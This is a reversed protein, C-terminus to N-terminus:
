PGSWEFPIHKSSRCKREWKFGMADVEDAVATGWTAVAGAAGPGVESGPPNITQVRKGPPTTPGTLAEAKALVKGPIEASWYSLDDAIDFKIPAFDLGRVDGIIGSLEGMFGGAKGSFIMQLDERQKQNAREDLFFAITIKTNGAWINGKFYILALVNLDDLSTEGYHGNRIHYAMVGDCDGYTPAQAFECPCPISCKCVDFWDGSVKWDPITNTNTAAM